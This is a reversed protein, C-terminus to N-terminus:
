QVAEEESFAYNGALFQKVFWRMTEPNALYMDLQSTCAILRGLIDLAHATEDEPVMRLWANVLDGRRNILFGFPSLCEELFCARLSRRYRTAGGGAFRFSIYNRKADDCKCADVLSFHYALRANLNMYEDDVLLYSKMGIARMDYSGPTFSRAVVSALDSISAPIDRRWSVGPHTVGKWFSQFPASIIEDPGVTTAEDAIPKMGGGLDLVVLNLPIESAIERTLNGARSVEDDNVGFMAEVSKEHCYRLVDHTSECASPRFSSASPDVLNLALINTSIPDKAGKMGEYSERMEITRGEWLAGPYIKRGISDLSIDQGSEVAALAGDMLFVSPIKYERLLAAGHGAVNGWEAILGSIRPFVKVIEPSTHHLVLIAGEPTDGLRQLDEAAFAKGSFVGRFSRSAGAPWRIAARDPDPGAPLLTPWPWRAPSYCGCRTM